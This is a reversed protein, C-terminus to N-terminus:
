AVSNAALAAEESPQELRPLDTVLAAEGSGLFNDFITSVNSESVKIYGHSRILPASGRTRAYRENPPGQAFTFGHKEENARVM